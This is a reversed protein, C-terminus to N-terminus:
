RARDASAGRWHNLPLTARCTRDIPGTSTVPVFDGIRLRKADRQAHRSVRWDLVGGLHDKRRRTIATSECPKVSSGPSTMAVRVGLPTRRRARLKRLFPSLISASTSRTRYGPSGPPQPSLVNPAGFHGPQHCPPGSIAGWVGWGSPLAVPFGDRERAGSGRQIELPLLTHRPVRRRRRLDAPRSGASPSSLLRRRQRHRGAHGIRGMPTWGAAMGVQRRRRVAADRLKLVSDDSSGRSVPIVTIGRPALTVRFVAGLSELAAKASGMAVWPQWTGRQGGPAYTVAIIRGGAGHPGGGGTRRRPLSQGALGDRPGPRWPSRWRSRISSRRRRARTPSSVDLTGFRQKVEAFVDRRVDRFAPLRRCQVIFGDAGHKRVRELTKKPRRRTSTITSAVRAGSERAQARRRPRHGEFGGTVLAHKGKLSM